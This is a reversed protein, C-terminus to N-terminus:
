TGSVVGDFALSSCLERYADAQALLESAKQEVTAVADAGRRSRERTRGDLRRVTL